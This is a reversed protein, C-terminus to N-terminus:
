NEKIENIAWSFLKPNGKSFDIKFTKAIRDIESYDQQLALVLAVGFISAWNKHEELLIKYKEPQEM